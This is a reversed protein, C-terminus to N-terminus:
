NEKIEKVTVKQRDENGLAFRGNQLDEYFDVGCTVYFDGAFFDSAIYWYKEGKSVRINKM